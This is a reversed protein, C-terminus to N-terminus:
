ARLRDGYLLRLRAFRDTLYFISKGAPRTGVWIM